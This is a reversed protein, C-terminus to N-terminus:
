ASKEKVSKRTATTPEPDPTTTEAPPEADLDDVALAFDPLHFMDAGTRWESVRRWGNARHHDLASEPCTGVGEVGPHRIVCFRM